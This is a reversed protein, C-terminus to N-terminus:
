TERVTSVLSQLKIVTAWHLAQVLVTQADNGSKPQVRLTAPLSEFWHAISTELSQDIKDRTLENRMAGFM